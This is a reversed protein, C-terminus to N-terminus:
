KFLSLLGLQKEVPLARFIRLMMEESENLKGQADYVHAPQRTGVKPSSTSGPGQLSHRLLAVIEANLSRGNREAAKELDARVEKPLRLVFRPAEEGGLEKNARYAM